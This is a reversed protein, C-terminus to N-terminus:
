LIIGAREAREQEKLTGVQVLGRDKQYLFLPQLLIQGDEIGIVETVELVKRSKDRMRGLHVLIDIGSVIQRQVAGLPLDMGMLVMTELRSGTDQSSNSHITSLSGDHGTNLAQLLDVAESGRVEGIVLRDPRMRLAARILDRITIEDGGRANAAKAELRVLNPVGQIQLEANDEITVIREDEPIYASLANLFTTKGSGTGGGILISYRAQVLKVLFEVCERTVSGLGILREMTIPDDPFRRITLIPGDLAVPSVVAHVRAGNELRADVIPMAENIVRNCKGVIQQIVDELKERSTFRKEWRQIHGQREIFIHDPGNVMIETVTDDELLEQLVDLRRVSYFLEQRLAIKEQLTRYQSGQSGLLLGDIHELVEGDELERSMDLEELLRRRLDAFSIQSM